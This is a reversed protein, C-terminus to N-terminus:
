KECAVGDKDKDLKTHAGYISDDILPTKKPKAPVMKGKKKTMDIAGTKAVGGPYAKNLASCNKFKKSEGAMAPSLGALSTAILVLVTILFKKM